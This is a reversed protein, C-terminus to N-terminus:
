RGATHIAFNDNYWKVLRKALPFKDLGALPDQEDRIV